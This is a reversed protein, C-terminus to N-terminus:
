GHPTQEPDSRTPKDLTEGQQGGRRKDSQGGLLSYDTIEPIVRPEDVVVDTFVGFALCVIGGVVVVAVGAYFMPWSPGITLGVGGIVFGGFVIAVALWSRPRGGHSGESM